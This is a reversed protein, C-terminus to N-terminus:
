RRLGRLWDTFQELDESAADVPLQPEPERAAPLPENGGDGFFEDFSPDPQNGATKGGPRSEDGFVEGLSISPDPAAPGPRRASLLQEFYGRVSQGGTLVAAFAPLTSPVAPRFEEQLMELAARIRDNTSDRELLQTYVALALQRHGQRLFIEAMTETVVLEPDAEVEPEATTELEDAPGPETAEVTLEAVVEAESWDRTEIPPLDSEAEAAV